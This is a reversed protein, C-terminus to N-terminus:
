GARPRAPGLGGPWRARSPARRAGATALQGTVYRDASRKLGSDPPVRAVGHSGCGSQLIAPAELGLQEERAVGPLMRRGIALREGSTELREGAAQGHAEDM